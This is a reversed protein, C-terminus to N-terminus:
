HLGNVTGPFERPHVSINGLVFVGGGSWAHMLLFVLIAIVWRQKM